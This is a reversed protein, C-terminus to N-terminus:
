LNHKHLVTGTYQGDRFRTLDIVIARSGVGEDENAAFRRQLFSVIGLIFEGFQERQFVSVRNDHRESTLPHVAAVMVKALCARCFDLYVGGTGNYQCFVISDSIYQPYM